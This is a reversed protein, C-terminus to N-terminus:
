KSDGEHLSLYSLIEHSPHEKDDFIKKLFPHANIGIKLLSIVANRRVYYNVDETLTLLMKPTAPDDMEGLSKAIILRVAPNQYTLLLSFAELVRPTTAGSLAKVACVYGDDSIERSMHRLIEKEASPNPYTSLTKLCQEAIRTDDTYKLIILIIDPDFQAITCFLHQLIGNHYNTHDTLFASIWFLSNKKKQQILYEMAAWRFIPNKNTILFLWDADNLQVNLLRLRSLAMTRQFTSGYYLFKYDEKTYGFHEYLLRLKKKEEGSLLDTMKLLQDKLTHNKLNKKISSLEVEGSIYSILLPKIHEYRRTNYKESLHIGIRRLILVGLMSYFFFLLLIITGGIMGDPYVLKLYEM